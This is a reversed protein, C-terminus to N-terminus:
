EDDILTWNHNPIRNSIMFNEVMKRSQNAYYQLKEKELIAWTKVEPNSHSTLPELLKARESYISEPGSFTGLKDSLAMRVMKDSGYNDLLMMVPNSLVDGETLPAFAM